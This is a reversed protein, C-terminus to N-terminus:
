LSVEANDVLSPWVDQLLPLPDQLGDSSLAVLDLSGTHDSDVALTLLIVQAAAAASPPTPPEPTGVCATLLIALAALLGAPGAARRPITCPMTTALDILTRM